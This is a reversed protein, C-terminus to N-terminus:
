QYDTFDVLVLRAEAAGKTPRGAVALVLDRAAPAEASPAGRGQRGLTERLLGKIEQLERVIAGHTAQQTRLTEVEKKLADFEERAV